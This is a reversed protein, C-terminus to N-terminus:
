WRGSSAGSVASVSPQARGTETHVRVAVCAADTPASAEDATCAAHAAGPPTALRIRGESTHQSAPPTTAAGSGGSATGLTEGSATCCAARTSREPWGVSTTSPPLASRSAGSASACRMAAAVPARRIEGMDLARTDRPLPRRATSRTGYEPSTARSLSAPM